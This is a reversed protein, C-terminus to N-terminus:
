NSTIAVFLKPFVGSWPETRRCRAVASDSPECAWGKGDAYALRFRPPLPFDKSATAGATGTYNGGIVEFSKWHSDPFDQLPLAEIIVGELKTADKYVDICDAGINNTYTDESQLHTFTIGGVTTTPPHIAGVGAMFCYRHPPAQLGSTMVTASTAQGPALRSQCTIYTPKDSFRADNTSWACEGIAPDSKSIFRHDPDFSQPNFNYFFTPDLTVGSHAAMVPYDMLVDCASAGYENRYTVDWRMAGPVATGKVTVSLECEPRQPWSLGAPRPSPTPSGHDGGGLALSANSATLAIVTLLTNRLLTSM